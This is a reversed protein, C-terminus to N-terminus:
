ECQFVFHGFVLCQYFFFTIIMNQAHFLTWCGSLGEWSARRQTEPTPPQSVETATATETTATTGTTRSDVTATTPRSTPTARARLARTRASAAHTARSATRLPTCWCRMTGPSQVTAAFPSHLPDALSVLVGHKVSVCLYNSILSVCFFIILLLWM